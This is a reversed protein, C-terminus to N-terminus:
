SIMKFHTLAKEVLKEKEMPCQPAKTKEDKSQNYGCREIIGNKEKIQAIYLSSVKVGHKKL